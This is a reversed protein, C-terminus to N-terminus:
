PSWIQCVHEWPCDPCSGLFKELLPRPWPWTVWSFTEANFALAQCLYASEHAGELETILNQKALQGHQQQQQQRQQQRRWRRWQQRRQRLAESNTQSCSPCRHTTFNQKLGRTHSDLPFGALRPKQPFHGSFLTHAHTHTRAYTHINTATTTILGNSLPYIPLYVGQLPSSNWYIHTTKFCMRTIDITQLLLSMFTTPPATQYHIWRDSTSCVLPMLTSTKM